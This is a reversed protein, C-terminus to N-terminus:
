NILDVLGEKLMINPKFNLINKAKSIDAYSQKIDGIRKEAYKPKISKGSVNIIIDALEKISIPVGSGCNFTEGVANERELVLRIMQIVDKVNVFDRTQQGDGEITPPINEKICGIFKTIVGSYSSKPDSRKSYINFPRIIVTPLKHIKWYM